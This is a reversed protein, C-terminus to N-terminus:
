QYGKAIMHQHQYRPIRKSDYTPIPIKANKQQRININTDQCEKAIMHQYQYRPIRKSDYTPTPIKTDKQ